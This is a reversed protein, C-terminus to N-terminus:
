EEEEIKMPKYSIEKTQTNYVEWSYMKRIEEPLEKLEVQKFKIQHCHERCQANDRWDVGVPLSVKYGEFLETYCDVYLCNEPIKVIVIYEYYFEYLDTINEKIIDRANNLKDETFVGFIRTDKVENNKYYIAQIYYLM